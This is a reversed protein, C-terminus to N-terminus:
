TEKDPIGIDCRVRVVSRPSMMSTGNLGSLLDTVRLLTEQSVSHPIIKLMRCIIVEM